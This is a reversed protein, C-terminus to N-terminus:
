SVDVVVGVFGELAAAGREGVGGFVGPGGGPMVLVKAGREVFERGGEFGLTVLLDEHTVRGASREEGDGLELGGFRDGLEVADGVGTWEASGGEGDAVSAGVVRASARVSAIYVVVQSGVALCGLDGRSFRAVATGIAKGMEATLVMGKRVRATGATGAMKAQAGGEAGDLGVPAENGRGEGRALSPLFEVGVTGVQDPLLTKVPLRLNRISSVKARRWEQEEGARAGGRSTLYRVAGPFSRSHSSTSSPRRLARSASDSGDSSDESVDPFFPGIHLETGIAIPAHRLLGALITTHPTSSPHYIDEIHFLPSQSTPDSSISAHPNPIPLSYLLSHLTEIGTGQVASTMVIPVSTLPDFDPSTIFNTASAIAHPTLTQTDDEFSSGPASPLITPRRGSDKLLTLINGLTSRLSNKSASDLKTIVIVLPLGLRLCLDLYAASLDADASAGMPSSQEPTSSLSPVDLENGPVCLLTWHPAWGVLGKVATRRYRPHGASDSLMVLRGGAAASHIDVWSTVSELAYNVVEVDGDDNERYGILEQSVSSTLGSNIEHRHKLTSLRSKGRANDLASTTLTGLLSSKGSSTAGTLSIRLQRTVDSSDKETTQAISHLGPGALDAAQSTLDQEVKDVSDSTFVPKVLAESVVLKSRRILLKSRNSTGVEEQWEADGVPVTRLVQVECGLCSAMARLNTISEQMEDESLGIFTGDDAVGIEYLAGQSEELGHILKAPRPPPQLAASADPLTPLIVNSASSAHNSSSQQLRWLLQTTLQELRHQRAQYTLPTPTLSGSKLNSESQTRSAPTAARTKPGSALHSDRNARSYTRRSRLLLHLKYEVPGDQPEAELKSVAAHSDIERIEQNDHTKPDQKGRLSELQKAWPSSVRPIDPEFTFISAM